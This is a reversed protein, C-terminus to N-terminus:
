AVGPRYDGLSQQAILNHHVAAEGLYCHWRTGAVNVARCGGNVHDTADVTDVVHGHWHDAGAAVAHPVEQPSASLLCDYEVNRRLTVCTPETGVMAMSGGPLGRVVGQEAGLARIALAGASVALVAVVLVIALRARTSRLRSPRPQAQPRPRLEEAGALDAGAAALLAGRLDQLRADGDIM